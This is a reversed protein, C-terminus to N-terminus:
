LRAAWCSLPGRVRLSKPAHCDSTVKCVQALCPAKHSVAWGPLVPPYVCFILIFLCVYLWGPSPRPPYPPLLMSCYKLVQVSFLPSFCFLSFFTQRKLLFSSATMRIKSWNKEAREIAEQDCPVIIQYLLISIRHSRLTYKLSGNGSDHLCSDWNHYFKADLVKPCEFLRSTWDGLRSRANGLFTLDQIM